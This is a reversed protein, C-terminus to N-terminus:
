TRDPLRHVQLRDELVATRDAAGNRLVQEFIPETQGAARAECGFIPLTHDIHNALHVFPRPPFSSHRFVWHRISHRILSHRLPLPCKRRGAPPPRTGYGPTSSAPLGASGWSSGVCRRHTSAADPRPPSRASSTTQNRAAPQHSRPSPGTSPFRHARDRFKNPVSVQPQAESRGLSRYLGAKLLCPSRPSSTARSVRPSHRIGFSGIVFPIVFLHIVFPANEEARQLRANVTAQPPAPRCALPVGPVTIEPPPNHRDRRRAPQHFM